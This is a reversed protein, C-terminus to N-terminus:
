STSLLEVILPMRRNDLFTWLHAHFLRFLVNTKLCTFNSVGQGGTVNNRAFLSGEVDVVSDGAVTIISLLMRNDQFLLAFQLCCM